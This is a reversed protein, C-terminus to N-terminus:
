SSSSTAPQLGLEGEIHWDKEWEIFKDYSGMLKDQSEFCEAWPELEGYLITDEPILMQLHGKTDLNEVWSFRLAREPQLISQKTRIYDVIVEKEEGWLKQQKRRSSTRREYSQPIYVKDIDKMKSRRAKIVCYWSGEGGM